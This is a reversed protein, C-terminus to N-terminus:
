AFMPLYRDYGAVFFLFLFVFYFIDDNVSGLTSTNAGPHGFNKCIKGPFDMIIMSESQASAGVM